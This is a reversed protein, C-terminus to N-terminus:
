NTCRCTVNYEGNSVYKHTIKWTVDSTSNEFELLDLKENMKSDDGFDCEVDAETPVRSTSLDLQLFIEYAVYYYFAFPKLTKTFTKYFIEPSVEM